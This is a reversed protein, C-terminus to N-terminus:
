REPRNRLLALLHKWGTEDTSDPFLCLRRRRGHETRVQLCALLPSLILRRQLQGTERHKDRSILIIRNGHHSLVLRRWGFTTLRHMVWAWILAVVFLTGLFLWLSLQLFFIVALVAGALVTVLGQGLLSVKLDVSLTGSRTM